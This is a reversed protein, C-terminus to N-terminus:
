CGGACTTIDGNTPKNLTVNGTNGQHQIVVCDEVSQVQFQRVYPRGPIEGSITVVSSSDWPIEVTSNPAVILSSKAGNFGSISWQFNSRNYFHRVCAAPASAAAIASLFILSATIQNRRRM